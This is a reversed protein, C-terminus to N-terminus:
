HFSNIVFMNHKITQASFSVSTNTRKTHCMMVMRVNNKVTHLLTDRKAHSELVMLIINVHLLPM